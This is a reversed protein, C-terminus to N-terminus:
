DYSNPILTRDKSTIEKRLKDRWDAKRENKYYEKNLESEM